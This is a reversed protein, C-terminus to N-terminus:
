WPAIDSEVMPSITTWEAPAPTLMGTATASTVSKATAHRPRTLAQSCRAATMSGFPALDRQVSSFEDLSEDDRPKQQPGRDGRSVLHKQPRGRPLLLGDRDYLLGRSLGSAPREARGLNLSGGSVDEYSGRPVQSSLGGRVELMGARTKRQEDAEAALPLGEARGARVLGARDLVAAPSRNSTRAMARGEAGAVSAHEAAGRGSREGLVANLRVAAAIEEHARRRDVSVVPM